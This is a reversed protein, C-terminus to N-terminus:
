IGDNDLYDCLLSWVIHLKLYEGSETSLSSFWQRIEPGHVECTIPLTMKSKPM